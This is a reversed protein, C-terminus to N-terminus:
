SVPRLHTKVQPSENASGTSLWLRGNEQANAVVVHKPLTQRHNFSSSPLGQWSSSLSFVSEQHCPKLTQVWWVCLDLWSNKTIHILLYEKKLFLWKEKTKHWKYVFSWCACKAIGKFSM